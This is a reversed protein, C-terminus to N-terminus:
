LTNILFDYHKDELESTHIYIFYNSKIKYKKKSIWNLSHDGKIYVIDYKEKETKKNQNQDLTIETKTKFTVEFNNYFKYIKLDNELHQEFSKNPLIFPIKVKSNKTILEKNEKIKNLILVDNKIGMINLYFGKKYHLFNPFSPNYCIKRNSKRFTIWIDKNIKNMPHLHAKLIM